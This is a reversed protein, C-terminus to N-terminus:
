QDFRSNIDEVIPVWSDTNNVSNGFGPTTVVNLNLKVGDEEIVLHNNQVTKGSSLDVDANSPHDHGAKLVDRNFLTNVLTSKGLGSAGVVMINLNFGRRVSKRHWQKPLNAFGVYGNLKRKIIKVDPQYSDKAANLDYTSM